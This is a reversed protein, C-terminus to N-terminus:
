QSLVLVAILVVTSQECGVVNAYLLVGILYVFRGNALRTEVSAENWINM